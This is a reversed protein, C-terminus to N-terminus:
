LANLSHVPLLLLLTKFSSKFFYNTSKCCLIGSCFDFDILVPDNLTDLLSNSLRIKLQMSAIVPVLFDIQSALFIYFSTKLRSFDPNKLWLQASIKYFLFLRKRSALDYSLSFPLILYCYRSSHKSLVIESFGVIFSIFNGLICVM